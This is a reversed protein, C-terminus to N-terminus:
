VLTLGGDVQLTQGTVYSAGPGALFTIVSSLEETTAFRRLPIKKETLKKIDEGSQKTREGARALTQDIMDTATSGPSVCNVRVGYRAMELAMQKTLAELGAKSACYSGYHSLPRSAATSSINVIAKNEATSAQFLPSLAQTLYFVSTLNIAITSDIVERSIQHIMGKGADGAVGANNILVSLDGLEEIRKALLAIEATNTVDCAMAYATGGADQISDAVSQAGQWGLERESVSLSGRETRETAIVTYGAAGLEEAVTRGIGRMRGAGTVVAVKGTNVGVIGGAVSSTKNSKSGIMPHLQLRTM